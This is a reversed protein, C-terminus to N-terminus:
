FFVNDALVLESNPVLLRVQYTRADYVVVQRESDGVALHACDSSYAVATVTGRNASLTSKQTLGADSM